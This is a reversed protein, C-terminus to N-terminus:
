SRLEMTESFAVAESANRAKAYGSAASAKQMAVNYEDGMDCQYYGVHGKLKIIEVRDMLTLSVEVEKLDELLRNLYESRVILFFNDGGLRAAYGGDRLSLGYLYKAYDILIADGNRNGYAKNIVGFQHLNLFVVSYDKLEGLAELKKGQMSIGPTNYLGTLIDIYKVKDLDAKLRIRSMMQHCLVSIFTIVDKEDKTFTHGKEAYVKGHGCGNNVAPYNFSLCEAGAEAFRSTFMEDKGNLNFISADVSIDVEILAVHLRQALKSKTFYDELRDWFERLTINQVNLISILDEVQLEKVSFDM